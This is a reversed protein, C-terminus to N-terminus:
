FLVKSRRKDLQLDKESYRGWSNYNAKNHLQMGFSSIDPFSGSLAQMYCRYLEGSADKRWSFELPVAVSVVEEQKNSRQPTM